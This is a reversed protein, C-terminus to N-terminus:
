VFLVITCVIRSGMFWLYFIDRKLVEEELARVGKWERIGEGGRGGFVNLNSETNGGVM